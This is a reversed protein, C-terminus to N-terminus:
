PTQTDQEIEWLPIKLLYSRATMAAKRELSPPLIFRISTLSILPRDARLMSAATTTSENTRLPISSASSSAKARLETYYGPDVGTVRIDIGDYEDKAAWTKADGHINTTGSYKLINEAAAETSCLPLACFVTAALLCYVKNVHSYQPPLVKHLYNTMVCAVLIPNNIFTDKIAIIAKKLLKIECNFIIKSFISDLGITLHTDKINTFLYQISARHM